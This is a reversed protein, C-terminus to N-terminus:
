NSHFFVNLSCINLIAHIFICVYVKNREAQKKQRRPLRFRCCQLRKSTRRKTPTQFSRIDTHGVNIYLLNEIKVM